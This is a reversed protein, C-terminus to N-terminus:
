LFTCSGPKKQSVQQEDEMVNSAFDFVLDNQQVVAAM